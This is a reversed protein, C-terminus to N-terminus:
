FTGNKITKQDNKMIKLAKKLRLAIIEIRCDIEPNTLQGSRVKLLEQMFPIDINALESVSEEKFLEDELKNLLNPYRKRLEMSM